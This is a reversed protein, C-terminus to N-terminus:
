PQKSNEIAEFVQQLSVGYLQALAPIQSTRPVQEGREWNSVTTPTTGLKVAVEMQTLGKAERLEKLTM